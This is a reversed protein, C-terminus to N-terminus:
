SNFLQTDISHPVRCYTSDRVFLLFHLTSPRHVVHKLSSIFIYQFTIIIVIPICMAHQQIYTM